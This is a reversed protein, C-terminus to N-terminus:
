FYNFNFGEARLFPLLQDANLIVGEFELNM